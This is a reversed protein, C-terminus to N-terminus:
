GVCHSNTWGCPVRASPHPRAQYLITLDLAVTGLSGLIWPLSDLLQKSSYTRILISSGYSLNAMIAAMFMSIALGVTSKRAYNRKIQSVRSSLYLVMSAYGLALGAVRSGLWM